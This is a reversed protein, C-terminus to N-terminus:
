GTDLSMPNRFTDDISTTVIPKEATTSCESPNKDM